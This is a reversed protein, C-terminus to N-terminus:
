SDKDVLEPHCVDCDDDGCASMGYTMRDLADIVADAEMTSRDGASGGDYGPGGWDVKLAHCGNANWVNLHSADLNISQYREGSDDVTAGSLRAYWKLNAVTNHSHRACTPRGGFRYRTTEVSCGPCSCRENM